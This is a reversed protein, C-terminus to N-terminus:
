FAIKIALSIKLAQFMVHMLTRKTRIKAFKNHHEKRTHKGHCIYHKPNKENIIIKGPFKKQEM